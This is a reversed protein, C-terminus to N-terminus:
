FKAAVSAYVANGTMRNEAGVDCLWKAIFSVDKGGISATYSLIPGLGASSSYFAGLSAGPGSDPTTQAVVYGVLGFALRQDYHYAATWDLHFQNGSTYRTATNRSNIMYGANFSFEYGKANLWTFAMNADFTYYNMGLNTLVKKDYYGTPFFVTPMVVLHCEGFNWAALPALFVDSLGGRDGDGTKSYQRRNRQDQINLSGGVNTNVIIPVGAALGLYGGMAPVEAVYSLKLLDISTYANVKSYIRGGHFTQSMSQALYIFDNRVYFGEAPIFGMLFDGYSGQIYHSTGGETALVPTRASALLGLAAAVAFAARLLRSFGKRSRNM